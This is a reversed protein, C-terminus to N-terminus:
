LNAAPPGVSTWRGVCAVLAYPYRREARAVILAAINHESSLLRAFRHPVEM